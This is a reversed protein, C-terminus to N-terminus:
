FEDNSMNETSTNIKNELRTYKVYKRVTNRKQKRYKERYYMRKKEHYEPVNHYLYNDIENQSVNERDPNMKYYYEKQTQYTEGNVVFVM